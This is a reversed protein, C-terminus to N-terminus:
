RRRKKGGFAGLIKRMGWNMGALAIGLVLVILFISVFYNLITSKNDQAIATTSALAATLDSDAAAHALGVSAMFALALSGVYVSLKNFM